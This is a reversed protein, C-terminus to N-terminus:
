QLELIRLMEANVKRVDFYKEALERSAQGMRQWDEPHEIFWVMREALALADAKPVLFGNQGSIVTDRCGSVDTTLVPRGTAMAELTSRPMGEHYSPLVFVHCAGLTPRVDKAEGLYELADNKIQEISIGDPSADIGGLWQFRAKPYQSKVRQAAESFERIGKDGLLRGIGLFVPEGEPLAHQRFHNLDVGSGFVRVCKESPVIGRAMFENLNDENQFIVKEARALAMRYLVSVAKTFLGGNRNQFAFGLGTILAYFRIGRIFRCAIGGWIIPKITYALVIDPKELRFISWLSHLTRSDALPNMGTRQVPYSRFRAGTNQIELVDQESALGAMALVAHGQSIIARILEGRFNTLSPAHAAVLAIKM